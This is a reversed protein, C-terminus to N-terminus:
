VDVNKAFKANAMIFEKRPEVDEGMLITFMRDSQIADEITIQKLIRKEKDMVTEHLEDSDMEGLGKFRLVVVDNGLQKRLENLANEDKAYYSNKGKIVKFLPPLALYVNGNEILKRMHRYFFTLILCSIHNGDSNHLTLGGLGGIFSRNLDVSIDYVFKDKSEIKEINLVKVANFDNNVEIIHRRDEERSSKEIFEKLKWANKHDNWIEYGKKLQKISGITVSYGDYNTKIMVGKYMHDKSRRKIISPLMGLQRYLFVIGEMLKKSSTGHVFVGKSEIGKSKGVFVSGDSQLLGKLFSIQLEKTLNFIENPIFKNFAYKDELDWSKLLSGFIYSNFHVVLSNETKERYKDLILNVGLSKKVAKGIRNLYHLKDKGLSLSYRYPNKKGKSPSGDGIYWGLLYCLNKDFKIRIDKIPSTIKDLYYNIFNLNNEAKDFPVHVKFKLSKENVDLIKLYKKFLKYQPMVNDRKFEWQELGMFYLGLAKEMKERTIKKEKRIFNLNKWKELDLDVYAEDPIKKLKEKNIVGYVRNKDMFGTLDITIVKDTRPLNKPLLIYDEKTIEKGSKVEVKGNSYTFISHSPTVTVNYGLYTKINYLDSKLPHKVINSIKKVKHEGPNISFSSISFNDPKICNDVFDGMYKFEIENKENFLLLPTDKTVSDADTLIIIKHYRLKELNFEEGVGAGLATIINAIEQHKFIKDMRAKEVNLIKGKLPLIAQTKRDRAAIGTGAASDGEVLFLECKSADSESCDMLKGPLSNSDLASKRRTLDRAKKAAERAKASLICKELVAKAVNPNEELFNILKDYVFSGVIGKVNSNGLKTKTQGEFQPEPVKVSIIATLGERVDSGSLQVSGHKGNNKKLYENIARTLATSFGAEHTGGEVTNISNCFSYVRDLFENNYQLAIEVVVKDKEGTFYIAPHLVEKNKNLNEVFSVIGKEFIFEKEKDEIENKFIIRLGKNLYALDKLRTEIIHPDFEVTSFIEKSPKFMIKTGTDKTEGIVELKGPVGKEFKIQYIKNNRKVQAVVFESLANVVSLGVGHLGGSVQYAKKEFKGGSHLSTMVVEIAPKNETPHMDVPIGRGDDEISVSNDKNLIVTIKKCFGALAEDISNSVVEDVLHHLGRSYTDGIYMAPRLKIGQLGKLVKISKASYDEEIQNESQTTM